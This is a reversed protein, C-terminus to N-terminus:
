SEELQEGRRYLKVEGGWGYLLMHEVRVRVFLM